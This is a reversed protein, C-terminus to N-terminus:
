DTLLLHKDDILGYRHLIPSSIDILYKMTRAVYDIANPKYIYYACGKYKGKNINLPLSLESTKAIEIMVDERCSLSKEFHLSVEVRNHNFYFEYHLENRPSIPYCLYIYKNTDINARYNVCKITRLIKDYEELLFKRCQRQKANYFCSISKWVNYTINYEEINMKYVYDEDSYKAFLVTDWFNYCNHKLYFKYKPSFELIKDPIVVPDIPRHYICIALDPHFQEITQKAGILAELESGEIDMKILDVNTINNEKVLKDITIGNIEISDDDSTQRSAPSAKKTFHLKKCIDTVAYNYAIINASSSKEINSQLEEYLQPMAEIAFVRGCFGVRKSFYLATDGTFAGCDIVYNGPFAGCIDKYRYGELIYTEITDVNWSGKLPPIDESKKSLDDWESKTFFIFKDNMGTFICQMNNKIIRIFTERSDSDSLRYFLEIIKKLNNADFWCNIVDLRDSSWSYDKTKIEDLIELM